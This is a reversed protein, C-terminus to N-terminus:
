CCLDLLQIQFFLESKTFVMWIKKAFQIFQNVSFIQSLIIIRKCVQLLYHNWSQDTKQLKTIILKCWILFHASYEEPISRKHKMLSVFEYLHPFSSLVLIQVIGQQILHFRLWNKNERESERRTWAAATSAGGSKQKWLYTGMLKKPRWWHFVM